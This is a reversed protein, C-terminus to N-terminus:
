KYMMKKLTRIQHDFKCCESKLYDLKLLQAAQESDYFEFEFKGISSKQASYIEFGKMALYAAFSLDSTRYM